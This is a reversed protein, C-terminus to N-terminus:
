ERADHQRELEGQDRAELVPPEHAERASFEEDFSYQGRPELSVSRPELRDRTVINAVVQPVDPADGLERCVLTQERQPVRDVTREEHQQQYGDGHVHERDVVVGPGASSTAAHTGAGRALVAARWAPPRVRTTSQQQM